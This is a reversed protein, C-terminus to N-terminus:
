KSYNSGVKVLKGVLHNRLDPTISAHWDRPQNPALPPPMGENNPGFGTPQQGMMQQHFQNRIITM